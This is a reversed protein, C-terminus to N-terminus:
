PSWNYSTTSWSVDRGILFVACYWYFETKKWRCVNSVRVPGRALGVEGPGLIVVVVTSEDLPVHSPLPTTNLAIGPAGHEVKYTLITLPWNCILHTHMCYMYIHFTYIPLISTPGHSPACPFCVLQIAFPFEYLFRM